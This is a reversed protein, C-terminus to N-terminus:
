VQDRRRRVAGFLALGFLGFLAGAGREDTSCSCGEDSVDNGFTDFPNGTEGAEEGNGDTGTGGGTTPDGDGDGTTPDGDGDGTSPDGDGDGTTPDGDGDGTTPDGDGDGPNPDVICANSGLQCVYGPDCDEDSTCCGPTWNYTCGMAPECTDQTCINMDGCSIGAGHCSGNLCADNETCMNDDDCPANNDPHLCAGGSCYDDTCEDGDDPCM